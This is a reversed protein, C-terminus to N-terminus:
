RSVIDMACIIYYVVNCVPSHDQTLVLTGDPILERSLSM